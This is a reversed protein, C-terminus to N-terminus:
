GVSFLFAPRTFDARMTRKKFRRFGAGFAYPGWHRFNPFSISRDLLETFTKSCVAHMPFQSIEKLNCLILGIIPHFTQVAEATRIKTEATTEAVTPATILTFAHVLISSTTAGQLSAAKVVQSGRRQQISRSASQHRRCQGIV